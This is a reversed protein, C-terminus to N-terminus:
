SVRFIHFPYSESINGAPVGTNPRHRAFRMRSALPTDTLAMEPAYINNQNKQTSATTPIQPSRYPSPQSPPKPKPPTPYPTNVISSFHFFSQITGVNANMIILFGTRIDVCFYFLFYFFGLYLFEWDGILIKQIWSPSRGVKGGRGKQVGDKEGEWERKEM